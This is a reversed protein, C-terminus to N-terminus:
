RIIVFRKTVMQDGQQVLVFYIGEPLESTDLQQQYAGVEPIFEQKLMVKGYMDVIYLSSQMEISNDFQVALYDATPVPYLEIDTLVPRLEEAEMEVTNDDNDNTLSTEGEDQASGNECATIVVDDIYVWDSNGSADCRFRLRTNSTFPGNIVANGAERVLNEFEDGRNWEEVTTYSSGGNTSVQLWFDENSNDMSRAIYSFDVTVEDAGSLNLNDTTM